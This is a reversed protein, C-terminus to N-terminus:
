KFNSHSDITKLFQYHRAMFIGGSLLAYVRAASRFKIAPLAKKLAGVAAPKQIYDVVPVSNFDGGTQRIKCFSPGCFGARKIKGTHPPETIHHIEAIVPVLYSDALTLCDKLLIVIKGTSETNVGATKVKLVFSEIWGTREFVIPHGNSKTM